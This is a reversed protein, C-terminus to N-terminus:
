YINPPIVIKLFISANKLFRDIRAMESKEEDQSKGRISFHEAGSGFWTQYSPTNTLGQEEIRKLRKNAMSAKRSAERRYEKEKQTLERKTSEFGASGSVRATIKNIAM